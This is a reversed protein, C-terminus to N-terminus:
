IGLSLNPLDIHGTRCCAGVSSVVYKLHLNFMRQNPFQKGMSPIFEHISGSLDYMAERKKPIVVREGELDCVEM